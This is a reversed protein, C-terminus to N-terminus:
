TIVHLIITTGNRLIKTKVENGDVIEVHINNINIPNSNNLDIYVRENPEYNSFGSKTLNILSIESIIKSVSQNGGNISINNGFNSIKVYINTTTYLNGYLIPTTLVNTAVTGDEVVYGGDKFIDLSLPVRYFIMDEARNTFLTNLNQNTNNYTLSGGMNISKSYQSIWLGAPVQDTSKTMAFIKDAILGSYTGAWYDSDFLEDTEYYAKQSNNVGRNWNILWFDNGETVFDDNVDISTKSWNVNYTNTSLTLRTGGDDALVFCKGYLSSCNNNVCKLQESSLTDGDYEISIVENTIKFRIDIDESGNTTDIQSDYDSSGGITEYKWYEVEEFLYKEDEKDYVMQYLSLQIGDWYVCYDWFSNNFKTDVDWNEFPTNDQDFEASTPFYNENSGVPLNVNRTLGIIFKQDLNDPTLVTFTGNAPHIPKDLEFGSWENAVATFQQNSYNFTGHEFTTVSTGSASTSTNMGSTNQTMTTTIGVVITLTDERLTIDMGNIFSQHFFESNITNKLMLIFSDNSYTGHELKMKYPLIATPRIKNDQLDEGNDSYELENATLPLSQGFFFAIDDNTENIVLEPSINLLASKLALKSFPKITFTNSIVNNFDNPKHSLNNIDQQAIILSM